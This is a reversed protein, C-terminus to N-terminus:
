KNKLEKVIANIHNQTEKDLSDFDKLLEKHKIPLIRDEDFFESPTVGLYECIYFFVQLSPFTKKNEISNIYGHSQGLSISMERASIEKEIRLKTLREYFLDEYM